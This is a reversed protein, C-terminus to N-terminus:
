GHAVEAMTDTIAHDLVGRTAGAHIRRLINAAASLRYAASGRMDSMPSYDQSLATCAAEVTAANWPAGTLAQETHSARAPTGAMGGFAIRANRVIGNQITLAFAGCVASIDSDFRKSLKTIHIQTGAAPRPIFVSEVWEGAARDQKGYAIFFDELAIERRDDGRRLTLRADMAILAPPMDGIPSGNAINGCITGANRVQTGAIRRVLEGLDPALRALAGHAEAYRVGAYLRLGDPTEEMARLDACDGLFVLTEIDRHQKTVWLGVDTAGAVIRAEPNEVMLRALDDASRPAFARRTQGAIPDDHSLALAKDQRLAILADRTAGDERVSGAPCREGAQLIPGYGTCRCLNGSLVDGVSAGDTGLAGMARGQLSMVFGPTCFGCQSGHCEVMARQVPSDKVGEVTTVARGDVMPLFQICGNVARWIVDDEAGSLECVLVTCAGCDGEACGEKSGTARAEYRLWDLLTATPDPDAISVPQGNLLFRVANM